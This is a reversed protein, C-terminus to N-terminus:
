KDLGLEKIKNLHEDYNKSFYHSKPSDAVFFLYDGPLANVAAKISSESSVAIPTPPLGYIMYTNYKNNSNLIDSKKIDGDFDPLLGYIITPDAQLKMNISLRKIFVGAILPKEYNNGAEKEIISALILIKDKDLMPHIKKDKLLINLFDNLRENSSKLLVSANMGKKYFYTDPYLVGESFPFYNDLCKLYECDNVLLSENIIDQIEYINAGEKIILKHTITEGKNMSFIIEKMTKNDISYEGTKFDSINELNLFIRIFIKNILNHSSFKDIVSNISEGPYVDITKQQFSPIDNVYAKYPAVFSFILIFLFFLTKIYRM